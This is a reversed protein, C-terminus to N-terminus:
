IHYVVQQKSNLAIVKPMLDKGKELSVNMSSMKFQASDLPLIKFLEIFKIKGL